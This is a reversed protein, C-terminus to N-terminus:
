PETRPRRPQSSIIFLAALGGAVRRIHTLRDSFAHAARNRMLRFYAKLMSCQAPTLSSWSMYAIMCIGPMHWWAFSQVGAVALVANVALVAVGLLSLALWGM